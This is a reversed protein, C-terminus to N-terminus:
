SLVHERPAEECEAYTGPILSKDTLSCVVDIPKHEVGRDRRFFGVELAKWNLLRVIWRPTIAQFIPAAKIVDALQSAGREGV